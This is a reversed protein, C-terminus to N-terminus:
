KIPIYGVEKVTNQGESSLLYDIFPKVVSESKTDYYYLLPRVVPYTRDMATESSAKVFTEGKDYSVNITKVDKSVYALGVYGIAGRTQSISQIVAGTAPMSMIGNMYNKNKLVSEKFFEYTGSSTERAYAVIRMDAGGVDKWNTIKGMFIDELQERTLNSVKNDPHVIIALADYGITVEKITKGAEQLRIREDFKVKRSAMAIDATGDRLSSLGVGTGGGTITIRASPNKSLYKEAQKQTLPLCTDSGKIRQAFTNTTVWALAIVALFVKKKMKRIYKNEWCFFLVDTESM